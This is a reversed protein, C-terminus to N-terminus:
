AATGGLTTGGRALYCAALQAAHAAPLHQTLARRRGHRGMTRALGRSGALMWVAEALADADGPPVLLGTVQDDVLDRLGGTDSAIVPRGCSMAELASLGFPEEFLSPCVVIDAENLVRPMSVWGPESFSLEGTRVLDPALSHMANRGEAGGGGFDLMTPADTLTLRVRLGRVLLQRLALVAIHAGKERVLRGPLLLRVEDNQLVEREAVFRTGDVPLGLVEVSTGGLTAALYRSPALLGDWECGAPASVAGRWASHSTHFLVYGLEAKLEQLSRVVPSSGWWLNHAHVVDPAFRRLAQDLAGARSPSATGPATTGLRVDLCEEYVLRVSSPFLAHLPHREGSVVAVTAGAAVLSTAADVLHSEVGGVTPPLAWHVLLVRMVVSPLLTRFTQSASARARSQGQRKM